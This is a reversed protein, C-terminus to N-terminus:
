NGRRWDLWTEIMWLPCVIANSILMIRLGLETSPAFIVPLALVSVVTGVTAVIAFLLTGNM